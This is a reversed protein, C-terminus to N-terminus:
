SVDSMICNSRMGEDNYFSVDLHELHMRKRIYKYAQLETTFAKETVKCKERDFVRVVFSYKSPLDWAESFDMVDQFQQAEWDEAPADYIEKWKADANYRM